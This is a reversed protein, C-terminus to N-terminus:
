TVSGVVVILFILLSIAVYFVNSTSNILGAVDGAMEARQLWTLM